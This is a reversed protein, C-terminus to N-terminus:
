SKRRIVTPKNKDEDDAKKGAVQEKILKVADDELSSMHSRVDIDLQMIKDSLAKHSMGLEKALEYVRIKAM